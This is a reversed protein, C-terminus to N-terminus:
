VPQWYRRGEGSLVRGFTLGPFHSTALLDQSCSIWILNVRQLPLLAFYILGAMVGRPELLAALLDGLLALALLFLAYNAAHFVLPPGGALHSLAAFYIQRSLPRYYNGLADLRSLAHGLPQTRAAELFLYDDNLFRTALPRQYLAILGALLLLVLLAPHIRPVSM